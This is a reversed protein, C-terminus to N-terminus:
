DVRGHLLSWMQFQVGMIVFGNDTYLVLTVEVPNAEYIDYLRNTMLYLLYLFTLVFIVLIKFALLLTYQLIDCCM